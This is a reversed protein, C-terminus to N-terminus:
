RKKARRKEGSKRKKKPATRLKEIAERNFIHPWVQFVTGVNINYKSRPGKRNTVHGDCVFTNPEVFFSVFGIHLQVMRRQHAAITADLTPPKAYGTEGKHEGRTITYTRLGM